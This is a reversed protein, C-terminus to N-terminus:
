TTCPATRTATGPRSTAPWGNASCTSCTTTPSVKFPSSSITSCSTSEGTEVADELVGTQEGTQEARTDPGGPEDNDM